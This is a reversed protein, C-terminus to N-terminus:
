KYDIKAFSMARSMMQPSSAIRLMGPMLRCETRKEPFIRQKLHVLGDVSTQTTDDVRQTLVRKKQNQGSM